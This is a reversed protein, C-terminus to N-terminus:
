KMMGIMFENYIESKIMGIKFKMINDMMFGIMGNM